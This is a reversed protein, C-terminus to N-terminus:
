DHPAISQDMEADYGRERSRQEWRACGDSWTYCRPCQYMGVWMPRENHQVYRPENYRWLWDCNSYVLHCWLRRWSRGHIQWLLLGFFMIWAAFVVIVLETRM